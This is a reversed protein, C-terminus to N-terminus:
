TTGKTASSHFMPTEAGAGGGPLLFSVHFTRLSSRALMAPTSVSATAEGAEAAGPSVVAVTVTVPPDRDIETGVAFALRPDRALVSVPPM